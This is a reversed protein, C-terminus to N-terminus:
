EKGDNISSAISTIVESAKNFAADRDTIHHRQAIWMFDTYAAMNLRSLWRGQQLVEELIDLNPNQYSTILCSGGNM